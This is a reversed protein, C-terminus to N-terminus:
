APWRCCSGACSSAARPTGAPVCGGDWEAVWLQGEADIAMGDPWGHGDPFRVAVRRNSIAGTADDYDFVAIERTPTDIFYM